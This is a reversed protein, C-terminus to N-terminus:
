YGIQVNCILDYEPPAVINFHKEVKDLERWDEVKGNVIIVKEHDNIHLDFFKGNFEARRSTTNELRSSIANRRSAESITVNGLVMMAACLIVVCGVIMREKRGLM